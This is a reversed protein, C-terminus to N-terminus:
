WLIDNLIERSGTGNVVTYAVLVTHIVLYTIRVYYYPLLLWPTGGGGSTAHRHYIYTERL